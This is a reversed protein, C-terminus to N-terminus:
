GAAVRWIRGHTRAVSPISLWIDKCSPLVHPIRAKVSCIFHLIRMREWYYQRLPNTPSGPQGPALGGPGCQSVSCHAQHVERIRCCMLLCEVCAASPTVGRVRDGARGHRPPATRSGSRAAGRSARGPAAPPGRGAGANVGARPRRSNSGSRLVCGRGSQGTGQAAAPGRRTTAASRGGSMSSSVASSSSSRRRLASRSFGM